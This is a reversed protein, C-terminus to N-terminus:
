DEDWGPILSRKLAKVKELNVNRNDDTSKVILPYINEARFPFVVKQDSSFYITICGVGNETPSKRLIGVPKIGLRSLEIKLEGLTM